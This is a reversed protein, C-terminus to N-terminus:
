ANDSEPAAGPRCRAAGRDGWMKQLAAQLYSAFRPADVLPSDLMQSRLTARLTALGALDAALRVARQAYDAADEAIWDHLGVCSLLSAGQRALLTNGALTVTPVGMWLAECTTTGGPYPFTDLLIDVEHHAALYAERPTAGHLSLRAEDIGADICRCRLRERLGPDDFQKCQLRLRAAPLARRIQSWAQLVRDNIKTSAQFCGFTLHGRALAPPPGPRLAESGLPPTFCLRTDPLYCLTESFHARHPAPVSLPDAIFYDISALGTSAFYGLWSVQVPAPKWAFVPLRSLDTHGALDVLVHIGDDHIQKALAEDDLATISRWHAFRPRLRATLDDDRPNASYAFLEGRRNDWSGLVTELFHGVPHTRLDGSVLGVRLCASAASAAPWDTYPRAQRILEDGYQMAAELYREPPTELDHSLTFLLNRRADRHDPQLAITRRFHQIAERARGEKELVLGLNNHVGSDDPRLALAQEFCAIAEANRQGHAHLNGLYHHFGANGPTRAVAAQMVVLAREPRGTQFLAQCLELRAAEFDPNLAVAAELPAIAGDADGQARLVLSLLYHADFMQPDLVAAHRLSLAAEAYRRQEKLAYGLNVHPEAAQPDSAIADRFATAAADLRGQALLANGAAQHAARVPAPSSAAGPGSFLRLLRGLM